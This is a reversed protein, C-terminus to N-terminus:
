SLCIRHTANAHRGPQYVESGMISLPFAPWNCAAHRHAKHRAQAGLRGGLGATRGPSASPWHGGPVQLSM